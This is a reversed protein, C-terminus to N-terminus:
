MTNPPRTKIFNVVIRQEKKPLVETRRGQHCNQNEPLIKILEENTKTNEERM